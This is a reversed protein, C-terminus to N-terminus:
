TQVLYYLPTITIILLPYPSVEEFDSNETSKEPRCTEWVTDYGHKANKSAEVDELHMRIPTKELAM